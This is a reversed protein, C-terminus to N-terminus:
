YRRFLLVEQRLSPDPLVLRLPRLWARLGQGSRTQGDEGTEQEKTSPLRSVGNRKLQRYVCSRSADLLPHQVLDALDDLPLKPRRSQHTAELPPVAGQPVM